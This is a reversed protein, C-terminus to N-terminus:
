EVIKPVIFYRDDHDPANALVAGQPLSPEVVDERFVNTIPLPHATPTVSETEVQQLHQFYGLINGLQHALHGKEEESLELRALWAITEVDEITFAM